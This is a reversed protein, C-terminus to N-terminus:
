GSKFEKRRTHLCWQKQEHHAVFVCASHVVVVYEFGGKPNSTMNWTVPRVQWCYGSHCKTLRQQHNQLRWIKM